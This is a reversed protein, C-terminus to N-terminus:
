RMLIMSLVCIGAGKGVTRGRDSCGRRRCYESPTLRRPPVEDLLFLLDVRGARDSLERRRTKTEVFFFPFTPGCFFLHTSGAIYNIKDIAFVFLFHLM